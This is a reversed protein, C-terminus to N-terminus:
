QAQEVMYDVAAKVEDDSLSTNGGKPPMMGTDGQFGDISHTYLTEIGQDIRDAWADADGLRPAGAVGAAHCAMCSSQYVSEGSVAAASASDGSEPEAAGSEAQESEAQEPEAQEPEAQEPEAQEPEAQEPEAQEPEAQEPEAQEPEAQEPEAEPAAADSVQAVMHDVAAKVAEDSLGPNGGKAPMMGASGQFGEISHTYLTEMGQDIRATWDDANGFVPAGAVGSAHCAACNNQYVSEGSAVEAEGADEDGAAAPESPAAEGVAIRGAPQIRELAQTDRVQANIDSQNVGSGIIVALIILAITLLILGGIMISFVNTFKGDSMEPESSM